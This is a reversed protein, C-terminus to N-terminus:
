LSFFVWWTAHVLLFFVCLLCTLLVISHYSASPHVALVECTMCKGHCGNSHNNGNIKNDNSMSKTRQQNLDPHTFACYCVLFGWSSREKSDSGTWKCLAMCFGHTMMVEKYKVKEVWPRNALFSVTCLWSLSFAEVLWRAFYAEAILHLIAPYHHTQIIDFVEWGQEDSTHM